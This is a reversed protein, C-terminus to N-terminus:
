CTRTWCLLVSPLFRLISVFYMITLYIVPCSSAFAEGAGVAPEYGEENVWPALGCGICVGESYVAAVAPEYCEENM